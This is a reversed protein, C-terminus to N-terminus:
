SNLVMSLLRCVMLSPCVVREQVLCSERDGTRPLAAPAVDDRMGFQLPKRIFAQGIAAQRDGASNRSKSGSSGTRPLERLRSEINTVVKIPRSARVTEFEPRSRRLHIRVHVRWDGPM